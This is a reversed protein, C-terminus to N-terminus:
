LQLPRAVGWRVAGFANAAMLAAAVCATATDAVAYNSPLTADDGVLLPMVGTGADDSGVLARWAETVLSRESAMVRGEHPEHELDQVKGHVVDDARSNLARRVWEAM